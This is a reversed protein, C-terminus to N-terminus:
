FRYSYMAQMSYGGFDVSVGSGGTATTKPVYVYSFDVSSAKSIVYGAGLTVHSKAIAPFLPNMYKDPIPNNAVNAATAASSFSSAESKGCMWPKLSSGPM